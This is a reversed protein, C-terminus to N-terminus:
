LWILFTFGTCNHKKGMSENDATCRMQVMNLHGTVRGLTNGCLILLRCGSQVRVSVAGAPDIESSQPILERSRMQSVTTPNLLLPVSHASTTLRRPAPRLRSVPTNQHSPSTQLSEKM